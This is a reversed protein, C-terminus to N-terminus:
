TLGGEARATRAGLDVRVRKMASLDIVVGDDCTSFGAVNHGGGRVAVALDHGRAFRLATVVDAVGRCRAVCAPRRDIAGNWVRRAEDYAADSPSILEGRLNAQLEDFTSEAVVSTGTGYAM